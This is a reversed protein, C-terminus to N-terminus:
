FCLAFVSSFRVPSQLDLLCFTLNCDWLLRIWRYSRQVIVALKCNNLYMVLLGSTAEIQLM